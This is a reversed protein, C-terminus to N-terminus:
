PNGPKNRENGEEGDGRETGAADEAEVLVDFLVLGAALWQDFSVGPGPVQEPLAHRAFRDARKM